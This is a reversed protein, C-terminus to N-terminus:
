RRSSGFDGGARDHDRFLREVGDLGGVADHHGHALLAARGPEANQERGQRPEQQEAEPERHLVEDDVEVRNRGPEAPHRESERDEGDQGEEGDDPPFDRPDPALLLDLAQALSGDIRERDLVM